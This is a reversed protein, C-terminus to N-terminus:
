GSRKRIERMVEVIPNKVKPKEELLGLDRYFNDNSYNPPLIKKRQKLHWEIQTKVYGEKLSPENLKNWERIRQNIFEPSFNLSKLFTLLVFLGRKKGEKLGMLLKKIPKPFMDESVGKVEIGEYNEYKKNGIKEEESNQMKKWSLAAALIKRGEGIENEPMFKGIKVRLPDADRAPDFKEIEEKGIVVSALATKEHLSYPMRFLHRPAVLVLDLGALKNGSIGEVFGSGGQEKAYNTYIAKYKGSYDTKNINSIKCYECYYYDEENKVEFFGACNDNICKLKRKTIKVDKRKISTKCQPCVFTVSKGKKCARGCEPCVVEVINEKSLNTREKLAEFNIELGSVIKNYEPKIAMTMFECIARPWEPFMEKTKKGDYEEPFARGGVIIHFGKSGSFKVGYNKIGFSELADIMLRTAIKSYDLYKSDVDIVLDWGKRLRNIDEASMESDIELPNEWIEESAHFSTAGKKVLGLIDSTYQLTDPRKGFGEFYKPVIERGSAFKLMEEQIMKNSYYIQTIRRVREEKGSKEEEKDIEKKEEMSKKFGGRKYTKNDGM